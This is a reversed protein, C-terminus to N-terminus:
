TIVRKDSLLKIKLSLQQLLTMSFLFYLCVQDPCRSDLASINLLTLLLGRMLEQLFLFNTFNVKTLGQNGRCDCLPPQRTWLGYPMMPIWELIRCHSHSSSWSVPFAVTRRIGSKGRGGGLRHECRGVYNGQSMEDLKLILYKVVARMSFNGDSM